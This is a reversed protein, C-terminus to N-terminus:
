SAPPASPPSLYRLFWNRAHAAAQELTGPQSFLHDAGPVIQLSTVVTLLQQAQQNLQLVQHDDGGVILLTPAQVDALRPGALDPRGGRSVVAGIRPDAAAAWLAAGAGTSAGFYGAPLDACEPTSALWHRAVTLRNALLEIDFVNGRDHEEDPTLLDLLLTGLGAAHLVEAVARNRPSHRGSGSGHAFAVIGRPVSPVRLRGHLAVGNAPIQVDRDVSTREPKSPVNWCYGSRAGIARPTLPAVPNSQSDLQTLPAVPNSQSDLQTLPAVPNSQPDLPARRAREADM